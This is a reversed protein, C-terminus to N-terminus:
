DYIDPNYYNEEKISVIIIRLDRNIFKPNDRIACAMKYSTYIKAKRLQKSWKNYDYSHIDTYYEQKLIDKIVFLM